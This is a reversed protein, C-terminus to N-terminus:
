IYQAMVAVCRRKWAVDYVLNPYDTFQVLTQLPTFFQTLTKLLNYDSEMFSRIDLYTCDGNLLKQNTRYEENSKQVIFNKVYVKSTKKITRNYFSLIKPQTTFVLNYFNHLVMELTNNMIDNNQYSKIIHHFSNFICSEYKKDMKILKNIGELDGSTILKKFFLNYFRQLGMFEILIQAIDKEQENKYNLVIDTLKKRYEDSLLKDFILLENFKELHNITLNEFIKNIERLILIDKTNEITEFFIYKITDDINGRTKKYIDLIKLYFTNNQESHKTKYNYIINIVNIIEDLLSNIQELSMCVDKSSRIKKSLIIESLSIENFYSYVHKIFSSEM